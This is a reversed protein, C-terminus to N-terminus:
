LKVFYPLTCLKNRCENMDTGSGRGFWDLAEQKLNSYRKKENIDDM